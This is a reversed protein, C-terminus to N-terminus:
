DDVNTDAAPNNIPTTYTTATLKDNSVTVDTWYKTVVSTQIGDIMVVLVASYGLADLTEQVTANVTASAFIAASEKSSVVDTYYYYDGVIIWEGDQSDITSTTNWGTIHFDDLAISRVLTGGTYDGDDIVTVDADDHYEIPAVVINGEADVVQPILQMRVYMDVDGNNYAYVDTKTEGDTFTEELDLDFIVGEFTNVVTDTSDKLWALTGGIGAAAVLVLALLLATFKKSTPKKNLKMM